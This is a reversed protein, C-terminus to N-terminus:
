QTASSFVAERNALLADYIASAILQHGTGNPHEDWEALRITNIDRGRFMGNLDLVIFGEAAAIKLSPATEEQWVGDRLQPLFILVPKIGRERCQSTIRRYIATLIDQGYPELLRLATTEDMEPTVSASAVIASIEPYPIAINERVATAIYRASRSMERGTAIYFVANPTFGFAKELAPLQQPPNYGPVGFNLLEYKAYPSHALERNLRDELLAEFTQGDGVGWGMVSSAGLVAARFVGPEPALAYEKDRMGYQNITIRGYKTDEAFSPILETHAFGPVFRKLNSSDVDIWNTPKKSYVEWLQSNFRNVDLLNEYYGREMKATDIRSLHSSRLSLVMTATTPSFQSYIGEIGLLCLLGIKVTTISVPPLIKRSVGKRPSVNGSAGITGTSSAVLVLLAVVLLSQSNFVPNSNPEAATSDSGLVQWLSLWGTISESTWFSWLICLAIFTVLTQLYLSIRNRWSQTSKNLTRTRGWKAEYLSNAIVVAGLLAWYLFDQPVFLITGRLWFWQYAHLFWTLFFVLMTSLVLAWTAGYDKIRFYVPFYFVKMMFDKWYINARRYWDNFSTALFFLHHTEPLRFGFLHLLGTILHFLGSVRLYLAFNALLFQALDGGTHVEAPALTLHYYVLRYIILQTVGRLMWDVGTQYIHFTDSDFYNRRFTKYDVVPFLPFCANPLMFFYSLSRSLNFPAQDHQLDYMYVILRFMFMSGLIPWIAASWPFALLEARQLALISGVSLLLVIRWLFSLPLHCIGILLLGIGILWAGNQWGMVLVIGALSLGLFFPLRYSLPLWAHLLFGGFALVALRLFAANEIQFQRMALLMLALQLVILLFKPFTIGGPSNSDTQISAALKSMFNGV